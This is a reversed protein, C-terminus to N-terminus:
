KKARNKLRRTSKPKKGAIIKSSPIAKVEVKQAKEAIETINTTNGINIDININEFGFIGTIATLLLSIWFRFNKNKSLEILSKFKSAYEPSVHSLSNLFEIQSKDDDYANKAIRYIRKLHDTPIDNLFTWDGKADVNFTGSKLPTPTGCRPCTDWNDNLTVNIMNAGGILMQQFTLRCAPNPCTVKM